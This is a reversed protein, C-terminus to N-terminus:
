RQDRDKELNVTGLDDVSDLESVDRDAKSKTAVGDTCDDGATDITRLNDDSHTRLPSPGSGSNQAVNARVTGADLDITQATEDPRLPLARIGTELCQTADPRLSAAAINITGDDERQKPQADRAGSQSGPVAMEVSSDFTPASSKVQDVNGVTKSHSDIKSQSPAGPQSKREPVASGSSGSRASQSKGPTVSKVNASALQPSQAAPTAPAPSSGRLSNRAWAWLRGFVSQKKSSIVDPTGGSIVTDLVDGVAAMSPFRDAPAKAMMKLCIKEIPSQSGLAPNALSPLPPAVNGIQHLVSTLTGQFPIQGTLMQYMVVGLSYIDTAPGIKSPDGTVQEPSMYAPTGLLRGPTTFQIDDDMRRALGFDMVIPEGDGDIMINEPKLDRHIISQEHAKQIGRAIKQVLRAADMPDKFRGDAIAQQLPQGDIFAMSLYHIGSIEGVDYIPCLYQSRLQSTARAERYFREIVDRSRGLFPTKLAVYRQLQSDYGLYVAGMAGCGLSRTIQYRGFSEGAELLPVERDSGAKISQDAGGGPTMPLGSSEPVLTGTIKQLKRLTNIAGQIEGGIGPHQSLILQRSPDDSKSPETM